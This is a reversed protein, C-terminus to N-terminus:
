PRQKGFCGYVAKLLGPHRSAAVAARRELDIPLSHLPAGREDSVIGGSEEMVIKAAAYDLVRSKKVHLFLDAAGVAAYSIGLAMVGMVRIKDIRPLLPMLSNLKELGEPLELWLLDFHDKKPIEAIPKGNFFAKGAGKWAYFEAGDAHNMVYGFVGSAMTPGDYVAISLAYLPIGMKANTSGDIPDIVVLPYDAGFDVTGTEESLVRFREGAARLKDLHAFAIKEALADLYVTEDGGAGSASVVKRGRAGGALPVVERRIERAINRSVELWDTM